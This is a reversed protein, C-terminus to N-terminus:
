ILMQKLFFRGMAEYNKVLDEVIDKYNHSKNNGLFNEVVLRFSNWAAAEIPSLLKPFTEDKLM